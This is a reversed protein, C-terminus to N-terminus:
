TQDFLVISQLVICYMKEVPREGFLERANADLRSDHIRSQSDNRQTRLRLGGARNANASRQVSSRM